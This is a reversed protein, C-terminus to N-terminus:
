IRYMLDDRVKTYYHTTAPAPALALVLAPARALALAPAYKKKELKHLLLVFSINDKKGNTQKKKNNKEAEYPM